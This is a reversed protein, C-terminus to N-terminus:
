RAANIVTGQDPVNSHRLLIASKPENWNLCNHVLQRGDLDM